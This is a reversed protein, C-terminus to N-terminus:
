NEIAEVKDDIHNDSYIDRTWKNETKDIMSNDSSLNPPLPDHLNHKEVYFGPRCTLCPASM